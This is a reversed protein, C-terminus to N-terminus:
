TRAARQRQGVRGEEITGAVPRCDCRWIRGSASRRGSTGKGVLRVFAQLRSPTKETRETRHSSLEPRDLNQAARDPEGARAQKREGPLAAASSLVGGCARRREAQRRDTASGTRRS